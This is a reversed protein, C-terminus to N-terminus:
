APGVTTAALDSAVESGAQECAVAVQYLRDTDGELTSTLWFVTRQADSTASELMDFLNAGSGINGFAQQLPCPDPLAVILADTIDDAGALTVQALKVLEPPNVEIETAM